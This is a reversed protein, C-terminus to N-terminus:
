ARRRGRRKQMPLATRTYGDTSIIKADFIKGEKVPSVFIIKGDIDPADKYSRGIGPGDSIVKITKELLAKNKRDVVKSQVKNLEDARLKKIEEPVQNPMDYAATGSERQFEFVGVNDFQYDYVFNCLEKFDKETEGPFGVIFNTRIAIDPMKTRLLKLTQIIERRGCHRNMAKLVSDSIHQLPMDLYKVIKQSSAMVDAVEETIRHPYAYMIRIWELGRVRDLRKLLEALRVRGYLDFGYATTDQAILSIEKVGNAAMLRAERVVEEIPKSRYQGRIGPIACYACKNNCGDAVKLYASHPATLSMKYEPINLTKQIPTIFIGGKKIVSNIKDQEAISFISDVGKFKKMKDQLREVMCGTVAVRKIIGKKKLALAKKIEGEAEKLASDLFGCTNIIVTDAEEPTFVMERGKAILAACFNESDTLNKPCGLSILYFKM